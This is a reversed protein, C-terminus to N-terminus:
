MLLALWPHAPDTAELCERLWDRGAPEIKPLVRRFDAHDEARPRQSKYLLQIEPSLYPIGQPNRRIASDLSRRIQGHRRYVWHEDQAEDLMLELVWLQTQAPRCWLSFVNARPHAGAALRSLVGNKAEYVDWSVLSALVQAADRRLIGVDLDKHPRSQNGTYLDLAWGGAIWWPAQLSTFWRAAAEPTSPQWTGPEADAM